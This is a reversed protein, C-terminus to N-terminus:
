WFSPCSDLVVFLRLELCKLCRQGHLSVGTRHATTSQPKVNYM